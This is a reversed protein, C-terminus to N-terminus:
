KSKIKIYLSNQPIKNTKLNFILWQRLLNIINQSYKLSIISVFILDFWGRTKDGTLYGLITCVFDNFQYTYLFPINPDLIFYIGEYGIPGSQKVRLLYFFFFFDQKGLWVM